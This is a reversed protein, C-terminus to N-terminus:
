DDREHCLSLGIVREQAFGHFDSAHSQLGDLNKFCDTRERGPGVPLGWSGSPFVDFIHCLEKSLEDGHSAAFCLECDISVGHFLAQM